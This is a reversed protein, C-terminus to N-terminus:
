SDYIKTVVSIIANRCMPCEKLKSKQTNYCEECICRHGCPSIIVKSPNSYCIICKNENNNNENNNNENNNDNNNNTNNNNNNTNNNNNNSEFTIVRTNNESKIFINNICDCSDKLLFRISLIIIYIIFYYIGLILLLLNWIYTSHNKIQSESSIKNMFNDFYKINIILLISIIIIYILQFILFLISVGLESLQVEEKLFIVIFYIIFIINLGFFIYKITCLPKFIKANKFNEIEELNVLENFGLYYTFNITLFNLNWTFETIIKGKVNQNTYFLYIEDSHTNDPLQYRKYINYIKYNNRTINEFGFYMDNIPCEENIPFYLDQGNNDKGCIKGNKNHINFYNYNTLKTIERSYQSVEISKLPNMEWNDTLNNYNKNIKVDNMIDYFAFIIFCFNIPFLLIILIVKNKKKEEYNIHNIYIFPYKAEFNENTQCRKYFCHCSIPFILYLFYLLIMTFSFSIHFSNLYEWSEKDENGTYLWDNKKLFIYRIVSLTSAILYFIWNLIKFANCMKIDYPEYLSYDFCFILLIIEIVEIININKLYNREKISLIEENETFYSYFYTNKFKINYCKNRSVKIIYQYYCQLEEVYSNYYIYLNEDNISIKKEIYDKLSTDKETKIIIDTIPCEDTNKIFYNQSCQKTYEGTQFISYLRDVKELEIIPTYNENFTIEFSKIPYFDLKRIIDNYEYDDYIFNDSINFDIAIIYILCNIQGFLILIKISKFFTICFFFLFTLCISIIGAILLEMMM